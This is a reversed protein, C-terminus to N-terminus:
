ASGIITVEGQFEKILSGGKIRAVEEMYRIADPLEHIQIHLFDAIEQANTPKFVLMQNLGSKIHAVYRTSYTKTLPQLLNAHNQLISDGHIQIWTHYWIEAEHVKQCWTETLRERIVHYCAERIQERLLEQAYRCAVIEPLDINQLEIDNDNIDLVDVLTLACTHKPTSPAMLFSEKISPYSLAYGGPVPVRGPLITAEERIIARMTDPIAEFFQTYATYLFFPLGDRTINCACFWVNEGNRIYCYPEGYIVPFAIAAKYQTYTDLAAVFGSYEPTDPLVVPAEESRTGHRVQYVPHTLLTTQAQIYILAQAGLDYLSIHAWHTKLPRLINEIKKSLQRWKRQAPHQEIRKLVNSCLDVAATNGRILEDVCITIKPLMKKFHFEIAAPIFVNHHPYSEISRILVRLQRLESKLEPQSSAAYSILTKIDTLLAQDYQTM